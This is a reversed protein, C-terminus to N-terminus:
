YLIKESTRLFITNFFSRGSFHYNSSRDQLVKKHGDYIAGASMLLRRYQVKDKASSVGLPAGAM